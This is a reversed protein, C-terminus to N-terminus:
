FEVKPRALEPPPAEAAGSEALKRDMLWLKLVLTDREESVFATVVTGCRAVDPPRTDNQTRTTQPWGYTHWFSNNEYRTRGSNPTGDAAAMEPLEGGDYVYFTSRGGCFGYRDEDVPLDGWTWQGKGLETLGPGYKDILSQKLGAISVQASDFELWRMIAVVQQADTHPAYIAALAEPRNPDVFGSASGFISKGAKSTTYHVGEPLHDRAAKEFEALDIGLEIGLIDVAAPGTAVVTDWDGKKLTPGRTDTTGDDKQIFTQVGEVAAKLVVVGRMGAPADALGEVPVLRRDSVALEYLASFVRGGDTKGLDPQEAVHVLVGVSAPDDPAFQRLYGQRMGNAYGCNAMARTAGQVYTWVRDPGPRARTGALELVADNPAVEYGLIRAMNTITFRQQPASQMSAEVMASCGSVPHEGGRGVPLMIREPLQAARALTWTRFSPLLVELQDPRLDQRPDRFFNGWDLRMHSNPEDQKRQAHIREKLMRELMMRRYGSEDYLDPQLSLALLDVAEGDLVLEEPVGTPQEPDAALAALRDPQGLTVRIEPQEPFRGNAARGFIAEQAPGFQLSPTIGGEGVVGTMAVRIYGKLTRDEGFLAAVADAQEPPVHLLAYDDALKPTLNPAPVGSMDQDYPVPMFYTNRVPFARLEPDYDQEIYFQAGIWYSELAQGQMEERFAAARDRRQPESLGRWEGSFSSLVAEAADPQLALLAGALTKGSTAFLEPPLEQMEGEAPKTLADPVPLDRVKANGAADAYLAIAEVYSTPRVTNVEQAQIRGSGGPRAKLSALTYDVVLYLYRNGRGGTQELYDLLSQADDMGIRFFPTILPERSTQLQEPLWLGYFKSVNMPFGESDFDYEGLSVRSIVRLPVPTEPTREVVLRRMAADNENLARRVALESVTGGSSYGGPQFMGMPFMEVRERETLMSQMVQQALDAELARDPQAEIIAGLTMARELLGNGDRSYGSGLMPEAQGTQKANQADTATLVRGQHVQVGYIAAIEEATAPRTIKRMEPAEGDWVHLVRGDGEVPQAANPLASQLVLSARQITARAQGPANRRIQPASQLESLELEVRLVPRLRQDRSVAWATKYDAPPALFFPADLTFPLPYRQGHMDLRTIAPVGSIQAFGQRLEPYWQTTPKSLGDEDINDQGQNVRLEIVARRPPNAAHYAAASEVAAKLRDQSLTRDPLSGDPMFPMTLYTQPNGAQQWFQDPRQGLAWFLFAAYLQDAGQIVDSADPDFGGAPRSTDTDGTGASAGAEPMSAPDPFLSSETVPDSEAFMAGGGSPMQGAQAQYLADAPPAAPASPASPAISVLRTAQQPQLYGTPAAGVSSQWASIARRSGPGLLGDIEGRYYGAEALARQVSKREELSM